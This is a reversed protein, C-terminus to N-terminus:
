GYDLFVLAQIEGKGGAVSSGDRILGGDCRGDPGFWQLNVV